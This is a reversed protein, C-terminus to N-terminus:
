KNLSKDIFQIIESFKHQITVYDDYDIESIIAERDMYALHKIISVGSYNKNKLFSNIENSCTGIKQELMFALLRPYHKSLEEIISIIFKLSDAYYDKNGNILDLEKAFLWSKTNDKVVMENLIYHSIEEIVKKKSYRYQEFENEIQFDNKQSYILRELLRYAYSCTRIDFFYFRNDDDNDYLCLNIIENVQKTIIKQLEDKSNTLMELMEEFTIVSPFDSVGMVYAVSVGFYEAIKNWTKKDRPQRKGTEYQSLTNDKIGIAEGLKKLSVGKKNRLEAIRNNM